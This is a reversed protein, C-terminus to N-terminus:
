GEEEGGDEAGTLPFTLEAMVLRILPAEFLGEEHDGELLSGGM